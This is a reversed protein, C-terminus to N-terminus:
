GMIEYFTLAISFFFILFSIFAGRDIEFGLLKFANFEQEDKLGQDLEEYKDFLADFGGNELIRLANEKGEVRETYDDVIM